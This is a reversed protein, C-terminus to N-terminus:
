YKRTFSRIGGIRVHRKDLRYKDYYECATSFSRILQTHTHTRNFHLVSKRMFNETKWTIGIILSFTIVMVNEHGSYQAM